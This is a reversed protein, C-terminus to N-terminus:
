GNSYQFTIKQASQNYNFSIPKLYVTDKLLTLLPAEVGGPLYEVSNNKDFLSAVSGKGDLALRFNVTEFTTVQKGIALAIGLGMTLCITSILKKMQKHKAKKASPVGNCFIADVEMGFATSKPM